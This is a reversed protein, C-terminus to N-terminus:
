VNYDAIPQIPPKWSGRKGTLRRKGKRTEVTLRRTQMSANQM